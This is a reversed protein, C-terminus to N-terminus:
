TTPLALAIPRGPLRAGNMVEPQFFPHRTKDSL